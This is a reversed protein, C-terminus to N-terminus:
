TIAGAIIKDIQGAVQEVAPTLFPRAPIRSTGLEQWIGYEVQDAVIFLLQSEEEAHISNSLAGTDYPANNAAIAKVQEAMSRLAGNVNTDLSKALVDLRATDLTIGGVGAM